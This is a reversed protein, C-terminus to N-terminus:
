YDPPISTNLILLHFLSYRSLYPAAPNAFSGKIDLLESPSNTTCIENKM